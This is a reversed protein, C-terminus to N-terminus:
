IQQHPKFDSPNPPDTTCSTSRPVSTPPPPSLPAAPTRLLDSNVDHRPPPPAPLPPRVPLLLPRVRHLPFAQDGHAQPLTADARRLPRLALHLGGLYLPLAERRSPAPSLSNFSLPFSPLFLVTPISTSLFSFTGCSMFNQKM